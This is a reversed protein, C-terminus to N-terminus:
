SVTLDTTKLLQLAKHLRYSRVFLSPTKNTIAKLKRHVQRNSLRLKRGLMPISFAANNLEEDIAARVKQLFLDDLSTPAPSQPSNFSGFPNAYKSQLTKRLELLKQIRVFLEAKDFPKMLYADAGQQLGIVKDKQEAKATLLIIPIHSTREDTKLIQCVEYGDKEPMMVDSLILDPINALALEIGQQGDEAVLIQYKNKLLKEIYTIVDKNDEIILVQTEESPALRTDTAVETDERPVMPIFLSPEMETHIAPTKAAKKIPLLLTFHTGNGLESEVSIHGEMMHILEKTLALGIGTGERKRTSANAVQYFRDFIHEQDKQSMGVGTDSVKLQLYSLDNNEKRSLHLGVRGDALTFKIANSLLNYIIHQIKMEDFDMTLTELESYFTLQVKREDALSHFSETLYRLYNVIDGQVWVMKMAGSDLKSLDLLQNILRLLNKSNRQILKRENEFGTITDTVGSIVTLPTRLEHSVTTFFKTKVADMEKIFLREEDYLRQRYGLALAFILIEIVIAIETIIFHPFPFAAIWGFQIGASVLTNTLVGLLLVSSSIIFYNAVKNKAKVIRFFYFVGVGLGLFPIVFSVTTMELYVGELSRWFLFGVLGGLPYFVVLFRVLMKDWYPLLTKLNVFKRLFLWYVLYALNSHIQLTRYLLNLKPQNPTVYIQFLGSEIMLVVSVVITYIAYWLFAGDRWQLFVLLHYIAMMWLAALVLWHILNASQEKLVVERWKEPSFLKIKPRFPRRLLYDVELLIENIGPQLRLEMQTSYGLGPIIIGQYLSRERPMQLVGLETWNSTGLDVKVRQLDHLYLVSTVTAASGNDIVLKVVLRELNEEEIQAKTFHQDSFSGFADSSKVALIQLYPNLDMASLTDSNLYLVPPTAKKTIQAFSFPVCFVFSM